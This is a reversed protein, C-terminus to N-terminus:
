FPDGDFESVRNDPVGWRRLRMAASGTPNRSGPHASSWPLLGKSFLVWLLLVVATSPLTIAWYIWFNDQIVKDSDWQLSPVAFLAALFTGPLFVMTMVAIVKMSKSDSVAAKALTINASADNRTM